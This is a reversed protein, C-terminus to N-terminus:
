GRGGDYARVLADWALDPDDPPAERAIALLIGVAALM